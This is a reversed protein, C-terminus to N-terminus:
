TDKTKTRNVSTTITNTSNNHARQRLNDLSSMQLRRYRQAYSLIKKFTPPHNVSSCHLHPTHLPEPLEPSALTAQQKKDRASKNEPDEPSDKRAHETMTPQMHTHTYTKTHQRYRHNAFSVTHVSVSIQHIQLSQDPSILPAPRLRQSLTQSTKAVHGSICNMLSPWYSATATFNPTKEAKIPM